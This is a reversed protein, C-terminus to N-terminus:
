PGGRLLRRELWVRSDPRPADVGSLARDGFARSASHYWYTPSLKDSRIRSYPSSCPITSAQSGITFTATGLWNASQREFPMNPTQASRRLKSSGISVVARSPSTERTFMTPLFSVADRLGTPSPTLCPSTAASGYRPNPTSTPWTTPPIRPVFPPRNPSSKLSVAAPMHLRRSSVLRQQLSRRRSRLVAQTCPSSSRYTRGCFVRTRCNRYRTHWQQLTAENTPLPYSTDWPM